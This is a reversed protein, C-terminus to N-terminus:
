ARSIVYRLNSSAVHGPPDEVYSGGGTIHGGGDVTGTLQQRAHRGDAGFKVVIRVHTVITEGPLRLTMIGSDRVTTNAAPEGAFRRLCYTTAGGGVVHQRILLLCSEPIPVGVSTGRVHVVVQRQKGAGGCSTALFLLTVGTAIRV